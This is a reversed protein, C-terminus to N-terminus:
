QVEFIHDFASVNVLLFLFFLNQKQRPTSVEFGAQIVVDSTEHQDSVLNRNHNM